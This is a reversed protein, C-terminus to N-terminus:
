PPNGDAISHSRYGTQTQRHAHDPPHWSPTDTLLGPALHDDGLHMWWNIDQGPAYPLRLYFTMCFCKPHIVSHAQNSGRKRRRQLSSPLRSGLERSEIPHKPELTDAQKKTLLRSELVIVKNLAFAIEQHPTARWLPATLLIFSIRCRMKSIVTIQM